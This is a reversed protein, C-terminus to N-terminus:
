NCKRRRSAALGALVVGAGLLGLTGPEPVENDSKLFVDVLGVVDTQLNGVLQFAGNEVISSCPVGALCGHSIMGTDTDSVLEFLLNATGGLELNRNFFIADSVLASNPEMLQTNGSGSAAATFPVAVNIEWEDGFCPVPCVQNVTIAAVGVLGSSVTVTPKAGEVSEDIFISQIAAAWAASPIAAALLVALSALIPQRTAQM